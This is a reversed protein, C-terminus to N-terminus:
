NYFKLVKYVFGKDEKLGEAIKQNETIARKSRGNDFSYLAEVIMLKWTKKHAQGGNCYESVTRLHWFSGISIRRLWSLSRKHITTTAPKQDLVKRTWRQPRASIFTLMQIVIMMTQPIIGKLDQKLLLPHVMPMKWSLLRLRSTQSETTMMCWLHLLLIHSVGSMIVWSMLSM